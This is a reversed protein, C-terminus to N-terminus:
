GTVKAANSFRAAAAPSRSTRRSAAMGALKKRSMYEATPSRVQDDPSGPGGRPARLSRLYIVVAVAVLWVNLAAFPLTWGGHHILYAWQTNLDLGPDSPFGDPPNANILVALAMNAFATVSAVIYFLLHRADYVAAILFLALAPFLYREHQLSTFTFFAAALLGAAFFLRAPTADRWIGVAIALSTIAFLLGGFTTASLPGVYPTTASHHPQGAFWWLNFADVSAVSTYPNALNVHRVMALFVFIDPHPPVLYPLWLLGATAGMGALSRLAERWGAWRLLYFLILPAFIVPQPKLMFAVACLVGARVGRGELVSLLALIVALTFIGDTQGWLVGDFLVAPALAYSGAAVLAWRQSRAKRALQYILAVAALDSALIPLRAYVALLPSDALTLSPHPTFLHAVALYVADLLGYLYVTLPPYNPLYGFRSSELVNTTSAVTYFRLPNHDFIHGWNVYAQLDHFFGHFPSIVLRILLALALLALVQRGDATASWLRLRVLRLRVRERMRSLSSEVEARLEAGVDVSIGM